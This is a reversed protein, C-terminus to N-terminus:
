PKKERPYRPKATPRRTKEFAGGVKRVFYPLPDPPEQSSQSDNIKLDKKRISPSPTIAAAKQATARTRLAGTSVRGNNGEKVLSQDDNMVERETRFYRDPQKMELTSGVQHDRKQRAGAGVKKTLLLLRTNLQGAPLRVLPDNLWAELCEALKVNALLARSHIEDAVWIVGHVECGKNIAVSRLEADGTLLISSKIDEALVLSFCDEATLKVNQSRHTIARGVQAPDLDVKELGAGFFRVWDADTFDLVENHAVPLAVVFDYPLRLMVEVLGVKHLDILCSADNIVVRRVTKSGKSPANSM